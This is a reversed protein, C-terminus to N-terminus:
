FPTATMSPSLVEIICGVPTFGNSADPFSRCSWPFDFFLFFKSLSQTSTKTICCTSSSMSSRVLCHMEFPVATMSPFPDEVLLSVYASFHRDTRKSRSPVDKSRVFYYVEFPVPTLFRFSYVVRNMTASGKLGKFFSRGRWQNEDLCQQCSGHTQFEKRKLAAALSEKKSSPQRGFYILMALWPSSM